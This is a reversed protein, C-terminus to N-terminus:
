PEEPTARTIGMQYHVRATLSASPQFAIRRIGFGVAAIRLVGAKQCAANESRLAIVIAAENGIRHACDFDHARMRLYIGLSDGHSADTLASTDCERDAPQYGRDLDCHGIHRAQAM